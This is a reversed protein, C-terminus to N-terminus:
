GGYVGFNRVSLCVPVIFDSRYLNDDTPSATYVSVVPALIEFYGVVVVMKYGLLPTLQNDSVKAYM